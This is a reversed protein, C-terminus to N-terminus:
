ELADLVMEGIDKVRIRVREARVSRSLTRECQQCASVITEAGTDVAQRVRTRAVAGGLEADVTELNGGGGCCLSHERNEPMERLEVGPLRALIRRPADYEGGKRGLDCPDHYTVVQRPLGDRLPLKGNELLSALYQTSHVPTFGLEEGLIEPYVHKWFHYCSPCTSVLYRAGTARVAELNHRMMERARELEGSVAMPYGCCWEEEGLLAYGIDARDLIQVFSQAVSYSRPFLSSVCGVFYVVEAHRRGIGLPPHALNGAWLLRGENPEGSINHSQEIRGDLAALPQPLLDREAVRQRALELFRDTTVGSPCAVACAGCLLCRFAQGARREEVGIGSSLSTPLWAPGPFADERRASLVPCTDDCVLCGICRSLNAYDAATEQHAALAVGSAPAQAEAEVTVVQHGVARERDVILDKVLPANRLPGVHIDRGDLQTQCALVARGDLTVACSGCKAIGCSSRFALSGDQRDQIEQLAELLTMSPHYQVAYDRLEPGADVTPDFREIRVQFTHTM